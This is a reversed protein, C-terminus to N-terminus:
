VLAIIPNEYTIGVFPTTDSLTQFCYEMLATQNAWLQTTSTNVGTLIIAAPTDLNDAFLSLTKNEYDWYLYFRYFTRTELEIFTDSIKHLGATSTAYEGNGASGVLEFNNVTVNAVIWQGNAATNGNVASIEVTDDNQLGHNNSTIVIPTTNTANTITSNSSSTTSALLGIYKDDTPHKRIIFQYGYGRLVERRNTGGSSTQGIHFKAEVDVANLLSPTTMGIRIIHNKKPDIFPGTGATNPFTLQGHALLFPYLYVAKAASVFATPAASSGIGGNGRAFQTNGNTHTSTFWEAKQFNLNNILLAKKNVVSGDNDLTQNPLTLNGLIEVNNAFSQSGTDIIHKPM